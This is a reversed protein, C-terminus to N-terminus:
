EGRVHRYLLKGDRLIVSRRLMLMVGVAWPEGRAAASVVAFTDVPEKWVVGDPEEEELDFNWWTGFTGILRSGKLARIAEVLRAPWRSLERGIGKTSYDAVYRAGREADTIAEVDVVFSGGSATRWSEVLGHFDIYSGVVIAHAHVHWHTGCRGRTIETFFAGGLVTSNWFRSRRLNVISEQLKARVDVLPMATAALTVTLFRHFDNGMLQMLKRKVHFGRDRLCPECFRSRCNISVLKARQGDASVCVQGSEGCSLFRNVISTSGTAAWVARAMTEREGQWAAHRLGVSISQDCEGWGMGPGLPALLTRRIPLPSTPWPILSVPLHSKTEVLDLLTPFLPNSAHVRSVPGEPSSRM